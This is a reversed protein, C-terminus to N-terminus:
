LLEWFYVTGGNQIYNSNGIVNNNSGVWLTAHGTIGGSFGGIIIYVGNRGNIQAQVSSLDTPGEIVEDATDWVSTRSLWNKLNLASAIFGKGKFKGKTILFEKPVNMGGNLLGLSVRTACANTLKDKEYNPGRLETFVDKAPKDVVGNTTHIKPYEAYVDRWKPRKHLTSTRGSNGSATQPEDLDREAQWEQYSQKTELFGEPLYETHLANQNYYEGGADWPNQFKNAM